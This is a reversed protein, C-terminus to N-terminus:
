KEKRLEERVRMLAKGLLNQGKWKAPNQSDPDNAKLGIGWIKDYPSAEAIIADGTALLAAKLEPNQSFKAYNANYIIEEKCSDWLQQNFNAASKGLAKCAAPESEKMIKNYTRTDGFLLAKKAMMYQENHFYRIGEVQFPAPYWQSFYGNDLYEHWFFVFNTKPSSIHPASAQSLIGNGLELAKDDIVAIIADLHYDSNAEQYDRIAKIAVEWAEKVPYGYIGSSILPFAISHCNRLQADMMACKYCNYLAEAEYHKGDKWRPGVAHIIYKAKLDFGPTVVTHGTHCVGIVDCIQQLKKAGAAAFIAGCVGGGQKLQSNAANVICDVDLETISIKQITLTSPSHHSESEIQPKASNTRKYTMEIYKEDWIPDYYNGYETMQCDHFLDDAIELILNRLELTDTYKSPIGEMGLYAGLINGTVAGTSDSDGRHNVAAILAKDFDNSYKLACYIAIALTEEAVWGEGLMRIADVDNLNEKALAKAKHILERLYKMHTATTYIREVTQVADDIADSISLESSTSLRYIIHVLVAAPLYGLEHGHTLAAAEAGIQDVEEIPVSKDGFYLGIPAVRMVGGCGKSNNIPQEIRGDCGSEIASLCTMGPARKSYLQHVNALWSYCYENEVPYSDQQTRLWEKYSCAIYSPYSGMIGRMMGRTTGLLLGTATFLTMQTDDSIRALGEHLVYETIGSAGFRQRISKTDMFEVEYGLADGAAGGILCGRFKDLNRM